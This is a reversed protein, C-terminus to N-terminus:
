QPGGRAVRDEDRRAEARIMLQSPVINLAEAIRVIVWLQPDREGNEYRTLSKKAIGVASALREQTLGKAVREAAIQRGLAHVLAQEDNTYDDM